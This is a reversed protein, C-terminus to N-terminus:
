RPSCARSCMARDRLNRAGRLRGRSRLSSGAAARHRHDRREAGGYLGLRAAADAAVRHPDSSVAEIPLGTLTAMEGAHPTIVLDDGHRALVDTQDWLGTLALADIVWHGRDSADDLVRRALEQAVAEDALGPGILGVDVKEMLKLIERSALGPRPTGDRESAFPYVGAELFSTAIGPALPRPVAISVKGAGARLAALGSLVVGGPSTMSGGAVLVSGRSNKDTDKDTGPLPMSRLLQPTVREPQASM